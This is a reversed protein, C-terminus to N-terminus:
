TDDGGVRVGGIFVGELALSEHRLLLFDAPYGPKLMGVLHDIGAARAPNVTACLLAKAAPIHAYQILNRVGDLLDLTSGAIAGDVTYAKGDKLVVSMGAIAYNGDPCGTGEMSDSILVTRSPGLLRYALRIMPPSIHFGDCILEGYALDSDLCAAVAGGDRHHLPPMANFLHTFSHVGQEILCSAQAWTANTHGLSPVIGLSKATALFQGDADLEWAATLRMPCIDEADTRYPAQLQDLLCKLEDANLVALLEPAHAGRKDPHLYRGELHLGLLRAGDTIQAAAHIRSAALAFDALPASALTPMVTTVGARLYSRSMRLLTPVDATVFDGGARGHTHIDILGPTVMAGDADLLSVDQRPLTDPEGLALITGNEMLMEGQTFCGRETDLLMAHTLLTRRAATSCCRESM